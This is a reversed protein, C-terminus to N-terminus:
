NLRSVFGGNQEAIFYFLSRCGLVVEMIESLCLDLDKSSLQSHLASILAHTSFIM